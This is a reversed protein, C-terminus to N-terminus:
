PHEEECDAAAEYTDWGKEIYYRYCNYEQQRRYDERGEQIGTWFLALLLATSVAIGTDRIIRRQRTTM